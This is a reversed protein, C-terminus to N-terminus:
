LDKMILFLMQSIKQMMQIISATVMLLLPGTLLPLDKKLVPKLAAGKGLNIDHKLITIDPINKIRNYTDDTSGDDIVIIPYQLTKAGNIVDAIRGEHNYVPIIVVFRNQQDQQKKM